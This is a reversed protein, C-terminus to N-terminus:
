GVSKKEEGIIGGKHGAMMLGLEEETTKKADVEGIIEGEYIVAIRDSL